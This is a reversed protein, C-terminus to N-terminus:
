GSNMDTLQKADAHLFTNLQGVAIQALLVFVPDNKFTVPHNILVHISRLELVLSECWSGNFGGPKADHLIQEKPVLDFLSICLLSINRCLKPYPFKPQSEQPLNALLTSSLDDVM